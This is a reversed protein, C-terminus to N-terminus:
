RVAVGSSELMCICPVSSPRFGFAVKGQTVFGLGWCYKCFEVIGTGGCGVCDPNPRPRPNKERRKLKRKLM